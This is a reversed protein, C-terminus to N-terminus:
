VGLGLGTEAFTGRRAPWDWRRVADIEHATLYGELFGAARLQELDGHGALTRVSLQAWGHRTHRGPQFAARAVTANGAQIGLAM